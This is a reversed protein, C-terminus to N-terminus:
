DRAINWKSIQELKQVSKVIIKGSEINLIGDDKFDSIVRIASETATGIINAIEERSIKLEFLQEDNLNFKELLTILAEATRQRLTDYALQVLREEKDVVKNSLMQIFKKAIEHNSYIIKEFDDKQITILKSDVMTRASDAYKNNTLLSEYGFYDGDSYIGTILEKGNESIRQTKVKGSEILYLKLPIEGERYIDNKKKYLISNNSDSIVLLENFSQADSIFENLGDSNNSYNKKLLEVKTLRANIADLLDTDDFPKYIYDDAGATMGKRMDSKEAKATLFIFPIGTTSDLKRLINLVGYGDLEPMMIDCIILDPTETKALAVGQKGNEAEITTFEALQLIEAINERIDQNDEIILIKKM